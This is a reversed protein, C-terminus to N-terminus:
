SNQHKSIVDKLTPNAHLSHRSDTGIKLLLNIMMGNEEAPSADAVPCMTKLTWLWVVYWM